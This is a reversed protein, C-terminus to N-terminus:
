RSLSSEVQQAVARELLTRIKHHAWRDKPTALRLLGRLLAVITAISQSAWTFHPLNEDDEIIRRNVDRALARACGGDGHREIELELEASEQELQLRAEQLGQHRGRLQEVRLHPPAGVDGELEDDLDDTPTAGGEHISNIYGKTTGVM